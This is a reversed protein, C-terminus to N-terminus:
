FLFRESWCHRVHRPVPEWRDSVVACIAPNRVTPPAGDCGEGDSRALESRVEDLTLLRPPAMVNQMAIDAGGVKSRAKSPAGAMRALVVVARPDAVDAGSQDTAARIVRSHPM